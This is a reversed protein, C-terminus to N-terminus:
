YVELELVRSSQWDSGSCSGSSRLRYLPRTTTDPHPIGQCVLQVQCGALGAATLLVTTSVNSCSTSAPNLPFLQSTALQLGTQAAWFARAGQVEVSLQESALQQQRGLMLLIGGVIILVFLALVMASGQSMQRRLNLCM